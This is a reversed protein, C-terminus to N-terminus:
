KPKLHIPIERQTQVPVNSREFAEYGEKFARITQFKQQKDEPIILAFEGNQDSFAEEGQVSVRVGEVPDGTIHDEVIGRIQGLGELRVELAIYEGRTLQYASDPRVARYPEGEPDRFLIEVKRGAEFFDDSVQKFTAEGENNVQKSVIADGYILKVVGRSPLVLEDKGKKGHVLVTVTNSASSTTSFMGYLDVGLIGSIVALIGVILGAGTVWKWLEQTPKKRRAASTKDTAPTHGNGWSDSLHWGLADEKGEQVYLRWPMDLEEPELNSFFVDRYVAVERGSHTALDASRAKLAGSGTRFAEEISHGNVLAHYFHEAFWTAEEDPISRTTALVVPIGAELYPRAQAQTSCGNLFLLRLGTQLGLMEALGTVYGYGDELSLQSGGAHGGYHFVSLRGRYQSLLKPLDKNEISEERLLEIQGRQALPLFLDRLVASERKLQRLYAEGPSNAFALFILPVRSKLSM